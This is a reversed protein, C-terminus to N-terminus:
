LLDSEFRYFFKLIRVIYESGRYEHNLDLDQYGFSMLVRVSIENYKQQTMRHSNVLNRLMRIWVEAMSVPEIFKEDWFINYTSCILSKCNSETMIKGGEFADIFVRELQQQLPHNIQTSLMFHGPLGVPEVNVNSLRKTIAAYIISLTLPIGKRSNLVSHILSNYHSYYNEKNGVFPRTDIAKGFCSNITLEDNTEVAQEEEESKVDFLVKMEDLIWHMPWQENHINNYEIRSSSMYSSTREREHRESLRKRILNALGDIQIHIYEELTQLDDDDNNNYEYTGHAIDYDSIMDKANQYFKAILIAGDELSLTHLNDNNQDFHENDRSVLQREYACLQQFEQCIHFRHTGELLEMIIRKRQKGEQGAIDLHQAEKAVGIMVDWIDKRNMMLKSWQVLSSQIDEGKIKLQVMSEVLQKAETDVKHRRQYEVFWNSYDSINKNVLPSHDFSVSKWRKVCLDRWFQDVFSLSKINDTNNSKTFNHYFYKTSSILNIIDNLELNPVIYRQITELPVNTIMM